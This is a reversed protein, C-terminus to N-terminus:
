NSEVVTVDVSREGTSTNYNWTVTRYYTLSGVVLNSSYSGSSTNNLIQGEAYHIMSNVDGLTYLSNADSVYYDCWHCFSEGVAWNCCLNGSGYCILDCRNNYCEVNVYQYVGSCSSATFLRATSPSGPTAHSSYTHQRLVTANCVSTVWLFTLVVTSIGIAKM